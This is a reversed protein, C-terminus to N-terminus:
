GRQVGSGAAAARRLGERRSLRHVGRREGRRDRLDAVGVAVASLEASGVTARSGPEAADARGRRGATARPGAPVRRGAAHGHQLRPTCAPRYRALRRRSLEEASGRCLTQAFAFWTDPKEIPNGYLRVTVARSLPM